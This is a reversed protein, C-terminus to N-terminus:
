AKAGTVAAHIADALLPVTKLSLGAISIRGDLTMHIRYERTMFQLQEKNLGQARLADCLKHRMSIIRDAMGKLEVTWEYLGMNKAFSQAIFHEGGGAVFTRVALADKDLSGSAFGTMFYHIDEIGSQRGSKKGSSHHQIWGIILVPSGSPAAGIDELMGEYDLGRTKNDCYRYTRVANMFVKFHNGWTM